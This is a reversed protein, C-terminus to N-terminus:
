HKARVAQVAMRIQFLLPIHDQHILLSVSHQQVPAVYILHLDQRPVGNHLHVLVFQVAALLQVPHFRILLQQQWHVAQVDTQM